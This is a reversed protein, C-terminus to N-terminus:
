FFIKSDTTASKTDHRHDAATIKKKVNKEAVERKKLLFFFCFLIFSIENFKYKDSKCDM